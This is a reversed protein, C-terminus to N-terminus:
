NTITYGKPYAKFQDIDKVIYADFSGTSLDGNAVTYKLRVYREDMMDPQIRAILQTGVASLAAFTGLTQTTTASAFAENDDTEITVAMTSDSGSDTFAATVAVVLYLNEGVGINRIAKLDIVNDSAETTLHAANDDFTNQADLIM